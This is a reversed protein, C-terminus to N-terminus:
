RPRYQVRSCRFCRVKQGLELLKHIDASDVFSVIEFETDEVLWSGEDPVYVIYANSPFDLRIQYNAIIGEQITWKTIKSPGLSRYNKFTKGELMERFASSSVKYGRGFFPIGLNIKSMDCRMNRYSTLINTVELLSIQHQIMSGKVYSYQEDFVVTAYNVIEIANKLNITNPIITDSGPITISIFKDKGILQRLETLLRIFNEKQENLEMSCRKQPCNPYQFNLDIGDFNHNIMVAIASLIFRSRTETSRLM